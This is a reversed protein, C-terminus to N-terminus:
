VQMTNILKKTINKICTHKRLVGKKIKVGKILLNAALNENL